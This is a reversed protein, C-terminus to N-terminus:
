EAKEDEGVLRELSLISTFIMSILGIFILIDTATKVAKYVSAGSDAEKYVCDSDLCKSLRLTLYEYDIHLSKWELFNMGLTNTWLGRELQFGLTLNKLQVTENHVEWTLMQGETMLLFLSKVGFMDGQLEVFLSQKYELIERLGTIDIARHDAYAMGDCVHSESLRVEGAGLIGCTRNLYNLMAPSGRVAKIFRDFNENSLVTKQRTSDLYFETDALEISFTDQDDPKASSRQHIHLRPSFVTLRDTRTLPMVLPDSAQTVESSGITM